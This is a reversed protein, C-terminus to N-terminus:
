EVRGPLYPKIWELSQVSFYTHIGASLFEDIPRLDVDFYDLIHERFIKQSTMWGLGGFHNQRLPYVKKADFGNKDGPSWEHTMERQNDNWASVGFLTCDRTMLSAGLVFWDTLISSPLLDDELM